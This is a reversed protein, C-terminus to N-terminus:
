LRVLEVTDSATLLVRRGSEPRWMEGDITIGCDVLLEARHLNRSLYGNGPVVHPGPRGRLIGPVARRLSRAAPSVATLRLPAPELGWFPNMGLFLRQLTSAIVLLYEGTTAAGGDLRLQLKDPNLIGRSRGLAAGAVLASTAVGAGFVGQSRGHPLVRHVLEIARHIVGVGFFMGHQVVGEGPLEMRLVPRRVIRRALTGQRVSEFLTWLARVPDRRTGIDLASMNTRGGRLPAVLPPKAFAGHEYVETLVRALTGDGGQVVLLDVGEREFRSLADPVVEGRPTEVHLVHPHARLFTVIRAVQARSRGARLNNLVGIRM